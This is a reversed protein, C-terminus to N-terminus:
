ENKLDDFKVGKESISNLLNLNGRIKDKQKFKLLIDDAFQSSLEDVINKDNWNM